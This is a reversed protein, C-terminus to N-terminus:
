ASRVFPLVDSGTQQEGDLFNSWADMLARRRDIATGRRYRGEVGNVVHGLALEALEGAFDTKEGAWDRFTSRLGHATQAPELRKVVELLALDHLPQGDFRGPFVFDSVQIERMEEVIALARLSLPVTHPKRTKKGTKLREESDDM